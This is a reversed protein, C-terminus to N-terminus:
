TAPKRGSHTTSCLLLGPCKYLCLVYPTKMSNIHRGKVTRFSIENEFLMVERRSPEDVPHKPCIKTDVYTYQPNSVRKRNRNVRRPHTIISGEKLTRNRGSVRNETRYSWSGPRSPSENNRRSENRSGIRGKKRKLLIKKKKRGKGINNPIGLLTGRRGM